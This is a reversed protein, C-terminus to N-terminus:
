VEPDLDPVSVAKRRHNGRRGSDPLLERNARIQEHWEDIARIIIRRPLRTNSDRNQRYRYSLEARQVLAALPNSQRIARPLRWEFEEESLLHDSAATKARRLRKASRAIPKLRRTPSASALLEPEIVSERYTWEGTAIAEGYYSIVANSSRRFLRPSQSTSAAFEGSQGPKLEDLVSGSSEKSDERRMEAKTGVVGILGDGITEFAIKGAGFAAKVDQIGGSTDCAVNVASYASENYNPVPIMWNLRMSAHNACEEGTLMDIVRVRYLKLVRKPSVGSAFADADAGVAISVDLRLNWELADM